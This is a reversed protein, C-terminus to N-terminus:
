CLPLGLLTVYIPPVSFHVTFIFCFFSSGICLPRCLLILLCRVSFYLCCLSISLDLSLIRCLPFVSLPLFKYFPPVSYYLFPLSCFLPFPVYLEGFLCSCFRFHSLSFFQSAVVLLCHLFSLRLSGLPLCPVIYFFNVSCLLAVPVSFFTLFLVSLCFIFLVIYAAVSLVPLCSCVFFCLCSCFLVCPFFCFLVSVFSCLHLFSFFRSSSFFLSVSCYLFPLCSFFLVSLFFSFLDSLCFLLVSICSPSVFSTPLSCHWAFLLFCGLRSCSSCSLCPSFIYM